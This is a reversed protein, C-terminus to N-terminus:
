PEVIGNGHLWPIIGGFLGGLFNNGAKKLCDSMEKDCVDATCDRLAQQPCQPCNKICRDHAEACADTPSTPPKYGPDGPNPYPDPGTEPRREGNGWGKGTWNGSSFPPPTPPPDFPNYPAYPDSPGVPGGPGSVPNGYSQGLLDIKNVIDNGSMGLLNMGGLEGVPDRNLWRGQESQYYAQSSCIFFLFLVFQRLFVNMNIFEM